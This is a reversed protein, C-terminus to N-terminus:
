RAYRPLEAVGLLLDRLHKLVPLTEAVRSLAVGQDALRDALPVTIQIPRCRVHEFFEACEDVVENSRFLYRFIGSEAYHGAQPMGRLRQRLGYHHTTFVFKGDPALADAAVRYMAQRHGKTPLNSVLTSLVRQFGGPAVVSKTCDAQVLGIRWHPEARAALRTLVALSFDMAVVSAASKAVLTTFRGKGCGLELVLMGDLPQMSELTPIMEMRSLAATEWRFDDKAAGQERQQFEHGGVNELTAPDFMRVIGDVIPVENGCVACALAGDMLQTHSSEARTNGLVGADKPCRLLEILESPYGQYM